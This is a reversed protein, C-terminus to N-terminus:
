FGRVSRAIDMLATQASKRYEEEQRSLLAMENERTLALQEPEGTFYELLERQTRATCSLFYGRNIAAFVERAAAIFHQLIGQMETSLLAYNNSIVGTAAGAAGLQAALVRFNFPVTENLEYAHAISDTQDLLQRATQLLAEFHAFMPDAPRGLQRDRAALESGLTAALFADYDKFGLESLMEALLRAQPRSCRTEASSRRWTLM